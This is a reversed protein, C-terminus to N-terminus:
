IYLVIIYFCYQNDYTSPNPDYPETAFRVLGQSYLYITLPNFNSVLVYLRLDFKLGDVLLPNDVYRTVVYKDDPM